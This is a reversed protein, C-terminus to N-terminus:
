WLDESYLTGDIRSPHDVLPQRAAVAIRYAEERDVFRGTSTLFGQDKPSGIVKGFCAYFPHLVSHHRAPAPASAILHDPYSGGLEERAESPVPIRIAVAVITEKSASAESFSIFEGCSDDGGICHDRRPQACRACTEWGDSM